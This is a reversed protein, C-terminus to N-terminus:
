GFGFYSKFRKKRLFTKLGAEIKKFDDYQREANKFKGTHHMNRGNVSKFKHVKHLMEHFMIYDLFITEEHSVNEFVRSITITDTSYEYSGLKSFSKQGFVLNTMEVIGLFYRENVRDFSEKLKPEIEDKPVAIHVNKIFGEYLDQHLSKKKTKFAKQMLHQILGIQIEESVKRWEKSLKFDYIGHGYKVNGNYPTFKGSYTLNFTNGHLDREPYILQFAKEALNM